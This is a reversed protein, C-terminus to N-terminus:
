DMQTLCKAINCLNRWTTTLLDIKQIPWDNLISWDYVHGTFRRLHISIPTIDFNAAVEAEAFQIIKQCPRKFFM